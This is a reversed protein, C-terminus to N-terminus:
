SGNHAVVFNVICFFAPFESAIEIVMPIRQHLAPCMVWHLVDLAESSTVPHWWRALTQAMNGEHGGHDHNQPFVCFVLLFM